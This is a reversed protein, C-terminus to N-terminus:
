YNDKKGILLYLIYSIAFCIATPVIWGLMSSYFPFHSITETIFPIKIGTIDLANVIGIFTCVYVCTRYIGRNSDIMKNILSLIILIIAIPYIAILVPVSFKLIQNLGLNAILFSVVCWILVWNKYSIKPLVSNFYSSVSGILGTTTTFCALFFAVGLIIRGANGFLHNSVNSLLEAGNKADPFLSASSAGIYGLLIYIVMLIAGAVMGAKVTSNALHGEDKVGVDRMANAVIIGFVLAALADMTQYGEVFAKSGPTKIYDGVPANFDGTLAFYGVGFFIVILFLMVPTLWKGLIEVMKSPYICVYWNLAFYIIGYIALAITKSDEPIFTASIEFPMNGARPIALLPGISIYIAAVFITAFLPDARSALTKLDGAKAVAAVGLVPLLVATLCFFMIATYYSTGADKGVMPPFIFNGAGFFMSFLMLSIIFFHKKSLGQNKM